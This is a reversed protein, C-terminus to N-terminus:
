IHLNKLKDHNVLVNYFNYFERRALESKKIM